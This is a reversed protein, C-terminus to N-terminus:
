EKEEAADRLREYELALAQLDAAKIEVYDYVSYVAATTLIEARPLAKIAEITKTLDTM